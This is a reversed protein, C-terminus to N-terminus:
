PLANVVPGASHQHESRHLLRNIEQQLQAQQYPKSLRPLAIPADSAIDAYGTALLIALGPRKQRVIKALEMGTMGPMAQDTIVLDLKQGGDIIELARRGSHAEIVRHGLDELMDVTSMAILPDDDVVLITALCDPLVEATTDRQSPVAAAAAQPLWLIATTGQGPMSSLHLRGGLQVAIGHVTSLGLGTGKGVPKTSFFPEIARKLTDADMGCGSDSVSIRLYSGPPLNGEAEKADLIIRITGGNPMSDRANICLNLVALEIQNADIEAPPLGEPADLELKVKHTMAREILERANRLLAALDTPVAEIDQQRAFALMRQTLTAGRRAGQLARDVLRVAQQDGSVRKSLLELNGMVAMLLNNFDHAVGGTLQGLSEVKQSQLLQAQADERADVEALFAATREEVRQELKETLDALAAREGNLALLHSRADYQRRRSRLAARVVSLLTMPHFPRELFTVNGLLDAIRQAAPNRELGGGRMTLIVFPLDSWAPQLSLLSTLPRLDRAKMAEEALIALGAGRQLEACLHPLDSCVISAFGGGQLLQGTLEGDRGHPALILARESNPGAASM